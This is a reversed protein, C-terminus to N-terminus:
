AALRWLMARVRDLGVEVAEAQPGVVELAALLALAASAEKASGRAVSLLHKRDGGAKRGMAETTNLTVSVLARRFQDVLDGNGRQVGKVLRLGELAVAQAVKEVDLM